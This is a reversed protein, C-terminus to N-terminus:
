DWFLYRVKRQIKEHIEERHEWASGNLKTCRLVKAEENRDQRRRKAAEVKASDGGGMQERKGEATEMSEKTVVRCVRMRKFREMEKRKAEIAMKQSMLRLTSHLCGIMQFRMVMAFKTM